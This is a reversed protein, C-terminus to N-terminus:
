TEAIARLFKYPFNLNYIQEAVLMYRLENPNMEGQDKEKM